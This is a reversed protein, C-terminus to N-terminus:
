ADIWCASFASECNSESALSTASPCDSEFRTSRPLAFPSTRTVSAPDIVTVSRFREEPFVLM